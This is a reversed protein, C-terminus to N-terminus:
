EVAVVKVDFVLVANGPIPGNGTAGYGVVPPVILLREGGVKMGAVGQEWGPIVQGGGLTFSFPKTADVNEDFVKGDTLWGRYNVSVKKGQTAEAGTGEKITAYAASQTDKYKDYRGFQAPDFTVESSQQNNPQAQTGTTQQPQSQTGTGVANNAAPSLAGTTAASSTNDTIAQAAQRIAKTDTQSIKWAWIAGGGMALGITIAIAAIIKNQMARLILM